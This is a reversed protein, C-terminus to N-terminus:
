RFGNRDYLAERPLNDAARFGRGSARLKERLEKEERKLREFESEEEVLQRLFTAVLASLSTKKEAAKVRARHYIDEDM